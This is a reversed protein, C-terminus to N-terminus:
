NGVEQNQAAYLLLKTEVLAETEEKACSGELPRRNLVKARKVHDEKVEVAHTFCGTGKGHLGRALEGKVRTTEGNWTTVQHDCVWVFIAFTLNAHATTVNHHSVQLIVLGGLVGDVTLAVQVTTITTLNCLVAHQLDSTPDLFKDDRSTAFVDRGDGNFVIEFELAQGAGIDHHNALLLSEHCSENGKFNINVGLGANGRAGQCCLCLCDELFGCAHIEVRCILRDSLRLHGLEDLFANLSGVLLGDGTCSM